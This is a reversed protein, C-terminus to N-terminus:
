CGEIPKSKLYRAVLLPATGTNKFRFIHTVRRNEPIQGFDFSDAFFVIKSGPVAKIEEDPPSEGSPPPTHTKQATAIAVSNIFIVLFVILFGKVIEQKKKVFDVESKIM